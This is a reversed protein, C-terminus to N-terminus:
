RHVIHQLSNVLKIHTLVATAAFRKTTVYNHNRFMKAVPRADNQTRAQQRV